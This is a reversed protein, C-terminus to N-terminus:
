DEDTDDNLKNVLEQIDDQFKVYICIFALQAHFKFKKQSYDFEDFHDIYLQIAEYIGGAYENIIMINEEISNYSVQDDIHSHYIDLWDDIDDLDKIKNMIDEIFTNENLPFFTNFM